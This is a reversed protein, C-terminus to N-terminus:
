SASSFYGVNGDVRFEFWCDVGEAQAGKLNWLLDGKKCEIWTMDSSFIKADVCIPGRHAKVAKIVENLTYESRNNM